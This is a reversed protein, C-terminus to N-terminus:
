RPAEDPLGGLAEYTRRGMVVLQPAALETTIWEDLEPGLYGFYGPLGDKEPIAQAIRAVPPM